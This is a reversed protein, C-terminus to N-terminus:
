GFFTIIAQCNQLKPLIRRFFDIFFNLIFFQFLLVFLLVCVNQEAFVWEKFIYTEIQFKHMLPGMILGSKVRLKCM